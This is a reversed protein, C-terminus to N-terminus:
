LLVARALRVGTPCDHYLRAFGQPARRRPRLLNRLYTM